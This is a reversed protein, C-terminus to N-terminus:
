MILGVSRKWGGGAGCKLVKWSNRTVCKGNEGVSFFCLRVSSNQTRNCEYGDTSPKGTAAHEKDSLM